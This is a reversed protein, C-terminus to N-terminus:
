NGTRSSGIVKFSGWEPSETTTIFNKSTDVMVTVAIM